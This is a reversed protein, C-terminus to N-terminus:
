EAAVAEALTGQKGALCGMGPYRRKTRREQRGDVGRRTKSVLRPSAGM